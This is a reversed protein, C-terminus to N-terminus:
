IIAILDREMQNFYVQLKWGPFSVPLLYHGTSSTMSHIIVFFDEKVRGAPKRLTFLANSEERVLNNVASVLNWRKGGKSPLRLCWSSFHLLCYWVNHDNREVVSSVISAHKRSALESSPWPVGKLIKSYHKQFPSSLAVNEVEDVSEVVIGPSQPGGGKFSM